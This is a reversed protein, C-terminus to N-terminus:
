SHMDYLIGHGLCSRTHALNDEIKYLYHFMFIFFRKTDLYQTGLIRWSGTDPLKFSDTQLIRTHRVIAVSFQLSIGGKHSKIVIFPRLKRMLNSYIESHSAAVM